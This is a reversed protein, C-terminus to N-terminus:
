LQRILISNSIIQGKIEFDVDLFKKVIEINTKTHETIKSTLIKSNNALAMYPILQDATHQDVCGNEYEFILENAAEEGVVESKKGPEGLANAGIFSNKTKIWLQIGSGTCISNDYITKINPIAAFKKFLIQKAANAQREAVRANKLSSSAVSVGEISIIDGTELINLPMLKSKNSFFEACSGGKPYFGYRKININASCNMKELLPILVHKIHLTPPAFKGFDAGGEITVNLNEKIAPMMLAQLVLGVSGATSIKINLEKKAIERPTFIVEKSHLENGSVDANCLKAMANVAQLHQEKLGPEKRGARINIISFPKKTYASLGLATRLIQGGGMSGDINIM